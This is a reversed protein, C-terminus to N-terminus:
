AMDGSNFFLAALGAVSRLREAGLRELDVSRGSREELLFLLEVFKMSEVVRARVLDQDVDTVVASPNVERVCAM